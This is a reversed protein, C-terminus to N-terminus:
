KFSKGNFIQHYWNQSHTAHMDQKNGRTIPKLCHCTSFAKINAFYAPNKNKSLPM